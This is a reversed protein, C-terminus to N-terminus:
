YDFRHASINLLLGLMAFVSLQFSGGYSVFPLPLGTVPLLGVTMAMNVGAHYLLLTAIGVALLGAFPSRCHLALYYGRLIVLLFLIITALCGLFGAEEGVVSYIFDTHQQPLFALAKQSGKLYGKGWIGGSGIAIKSQMIQYGGGSPDREPHEFVTLRMRQYPELHNWLVPAGFMVATQIVVFLALVLWSLRVRWLVLVSVVLYAAWFVYHRCLILSALPSMMLLTHLWPLGSWLVMAIGMVAFAGSTGLDPEKLVLALPLLVMGAAPLLTSWRAPDRKKAALFQALAIATALKALESPQMRFPGAGLWRRAGYVETGFLLVAVLLLTTAAYLLIGLDELVRLPVAMALAMVGFALPLAVLHRAFFGARASDPFETASYVALLGILVLAGGAIVLYPDLRRRYIAFAAPLRM